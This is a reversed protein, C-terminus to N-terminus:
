LHIFIDAPKRGQRPQCSLQLRTEFQSRRGWDRWSMGACEAGCYFKIIQNFINNNECNIKFNLWRLNLLFIKKYEIM